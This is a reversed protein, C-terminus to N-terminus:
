LGDGGRERVKGVDLKLAADLGEARAETGESTGEIVKERRLEGM